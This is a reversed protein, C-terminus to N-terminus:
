YPAAGIWRVFGVDLHQKGRDLLTERSVSAATHGVTERSVGTAVVGQEVWKEHVWCWHEM